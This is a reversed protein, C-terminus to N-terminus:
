QGFQFPSQSQDGAEAPGNSFQVPRRGKPRGDFKLQNGPNNQVAPENAPEEDEDTAMTDSEDMGFGSEEFGGDDFGEMFGDDAPFGDGESFEGPPMGGPGPGMPGGLGEAPLAQAAFGFIKSFIGRRNDPQGPAPGQPSDMGGFSDGSDDALDFPSTAMDDSSTDEVFTETDEQVDDAFPNADSAPTTTTTVEEVPTEVEAIVIPSDGQTKVSVQRAQAVTLRSALAEMPIQFDTRLVKAEREARAQKAEDVLKRREAMVASERAARRIRELTMRAQGQVASLSRDVLPSSTGMQSELSAGKELDAHALKMDGQAMYTLGRLYYGRPDEPAEEIATTLQSVAEDWRGAFYAGSGATYAPLTEATQAWATTTGVVLGCVLCWVFRYSCM